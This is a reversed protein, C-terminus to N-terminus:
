APTCVGITIITVLSAILLSNALGQKLPGSEAFAEGTVTTLTYGFLRLYNDLNPSPPFVQGGVLDRPDMLSVSFLNYIPALSYIAALIALIILVVKRRSAM